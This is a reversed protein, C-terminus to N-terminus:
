MSATICSQSSHQMTQGTPFIRRDGSRVLCCTDWPLVIAQKLMAITQCHADGSFMLLILVGQAPFPTDRKAVM